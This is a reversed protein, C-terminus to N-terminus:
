IQLFILKKVDTEWKTQTVVASTNMTDMRNLNAGVLETSNYNTGSRINEPLYVLLFLYIFLYIGLTVRCSIIEAQSVQWSTLLLLSCRNYGRGAESQAIYNKYDM